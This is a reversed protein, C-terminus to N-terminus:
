SGAHPDVVQRVPEPDDCLIRVDCFGEYISPPEFIRFVNIVAEDPVIEDPARGRNRRLAIDLDVNVWIVQVPVGAARAIEIVRARHEVTAFTSDIYIADDSSAWKQALTSKGAGQVGIVM